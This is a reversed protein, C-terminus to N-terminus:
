VSIPPQPSRFLNSMLEVPLPFVVTENQEVSIQNLTHLYRLQMTAPNETMKNAATLLMQAAQMEGEASILKARREREAEAQSAMSRQMKQPLIVDRVEVATVKVGWTDTAEDLVSRIKNNISDRQQLIEDLESDGVASRLTTAALLATSQNHNDVMIVSKIADSVYFYIVANVRVTVSDKTMMEQTPVDMTRIRLDVRRIEDVFPIFFFLGPGKAPRVLRGLRFHVCREYQNFIKIIFPWFLPIIGIISCITVAVIRFFAEIPGEDEQSNDTMAHMDDKDRLLTNEDMDLNQKAQSQYAM